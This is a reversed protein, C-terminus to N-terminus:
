TSTSRPSGSSTPSALFASPGPPRPDSTSPRAPARLLAAPGAPDALDDEVPHVHGARSLEDLDGSSKRAGAFVTAGAGALARTVTLGIGKSVGTVVATNGALGLDM